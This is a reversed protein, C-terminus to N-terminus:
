VQGPDSFRYSLEAGNGCIQSNLMVTLEQKKQMELVGLLPHINQPRKEDSSGHCPQRPSHCATSLLVLSGVPGVTRRKKCCAQTSLHIWQLDCM